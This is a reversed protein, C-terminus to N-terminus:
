RREVTIIEDLEIKKAIYYRRTACENNPIKKAEELEILWEPGKVENVKNHITPDGNHHKFHCGSCIPILNLWNYRLNGASSKPYYHHLCSMPQGCVLCKSYRIRGLIQMSKDSARSYDSVKLPKRKKKSTKWERKERERKLYCRYCWSTNAFRENKGCIKCPKQDPM